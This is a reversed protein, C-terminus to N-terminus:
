IILEGKAIQERLYKEQELPTAKSLDKDNMLDTRSRTSTDMRRANKRNVEIPDIHDVPSLMRDIAEFTLTPYKDALEFIERKREVAKPVKKLLGELELENKQLKAIESKSKSEREDLVKHIISSIDKPLDEDVEAPQALKAELEAIRKEREELTEQLTDRKRLLRDIRKRYPNGEEEGDEGEPEVPPIAEETKVEPEPTAEPKAEAKGDIQNLESALTANLEETSMADIKTEDSM